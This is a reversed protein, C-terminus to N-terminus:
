LACRTLFCCPHLSPACPQPDLDRCYQLVLSSSTRINKFGIEFEELNDNGELASMIAHVGLLNIGTAGVRLVRLATREHLLGSFGRAIGGENGARVVLPDSQMDNGQLSLVVLGTNEELALLVDLIGITTELCAM